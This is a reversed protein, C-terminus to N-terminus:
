VSPATLVDRFRLFFAEFGLQLNLNRTSARELAQLDDILDLLHELKITKAFSQLMPLQDHNLVEEHNVGVAILLLDRLGHILWTITETPQGSKSLSQATDLVDNVSRLTSGFTLAFFERRKSQAEQLDTHLAQGIRADTLKTLFRADDPPIERKLLLAAEVKMRSPPTFHLSLCRSRVTAPLAAPKSTVLIFLSYSPPEELTKLLANAAGLTLRDAEDILCVKWRGILPRYIMHHEFERVQDIKIQPNAQERDPEILLFDPHTKAEIQRCSVCTGCPDIAPSTDTADCNVAQAFKVAMLRKGIAEAGTFLYAHAIHGRRLAARLREKPGAHGIIEQFSM